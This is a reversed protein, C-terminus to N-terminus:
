KLSLAKLIVESIDHRLHVEQVHDISGSNKITELNPSSTQKHIVITPYLSDLGKQLSDNMTFLSIREKDNSHLKLHMRQAEIDDKYKDRDKIYNPIKSIISWTSIMIFLLEVINEKIFGLGVHLFTVDGLM